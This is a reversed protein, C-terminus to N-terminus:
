EKVYFNAIAKILNYKSSGVDKQVNEIPKSILIYEAGIEKAFPVNYRYTANKMVIHYAIVNEEPEIFKELIFNNIQSGFHQLGVVPKDQKAEGSEFSYEYFKGNKQTICIPKM